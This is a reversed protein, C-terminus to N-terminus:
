RAPSPLNFPNQTPDSNAFSVTGAKFARSAPYGVPDHFTDSTGRISSGRWPNTLSYGAPALRTLVVCVHWREERYLHSDPGLRGALSPWLSRLRRVTSSRMAWCVNSDGPCPCAPKLITSTDSIDFASVTDVDNGGDITDPTATTSFFTDNGDNGSLFDSGSGGVLTDM